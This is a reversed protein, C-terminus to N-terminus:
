ECIKYGLSPRLAGTVGEKAGGYGFGDKKTEYLKLKIPDM